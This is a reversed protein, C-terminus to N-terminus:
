EHQGESNTYDTSDLPRTYYDLIVDDKLESNRDLEDYLWGLFMDLKTITKYRLKM